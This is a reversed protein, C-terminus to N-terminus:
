TISAPCVFWHVKVRNRKDTFKDNYEFLDDDEVERGGPIQLVYKYSGANGIINCIFIKCVYRSICSVVWAGVKNLIRVKGCALSQLTRRLEKDEIGTSDKIDQFSQIEPENFLM